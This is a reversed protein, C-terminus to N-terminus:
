LTIRRGIAPMHPRGFGEDYASQLDKNISRSDCAERFAEAVADRLEEHNRDASADDCELLGASDPYLAINVIRRVDERLERLTEDLTHAAMQGAQWAANYKWKSEALREAVRDAERAADKDTDYICDCYLVYGGNETNHYGALYRTQGSRAPLQCVIGRLTGMMQDDDLYWGTHRLNALEDAFGSWRFPIQDRHWWIRIPTKGNWGSDGSTTARQKVERGERTALLAATATARAFPVMQRWARYTCLQKENLM